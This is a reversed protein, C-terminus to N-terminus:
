GEARSIRYPSAVQDSALIERWRLLSRSCSPDPGVRSPRASFVPGDLRVTRWCVPEGRNRKFGIAALQEEPNKM